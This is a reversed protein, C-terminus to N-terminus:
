TTERGVSVYRIRPDFAFTDKLFQGADLVLLPHDASAVADAASSKIEPWPTGVVVASAGVVSEAQTRALVARGSLDGPLEKVVPDYTRVIAGRGALWRCLEISFSRRLTDTGPKYTLGWLAITKGAVGELLQDLRRGAWWRHRDNSTKVAPLLTADTGHDSALGSLFVIDRALTGGAFAEGARLYAKPGIRSETKLGREVESADGGVRECISAIENMFAVSTALFANIAHKTMEASEISMWEVRDTIPALLAAIRGRSTEGRVGVVVRDPNMFVDLAKGLRLNEPSYAFLLDPRTSACAACLRATTGVPVQSSVLVLASQAAYQLISQAREVVCEVDARDEEDVPTDYAIWVIESGAVASATSDFTLTGQRLGALIAEDLGPEFLPARGQKLEGVVVADDDIGVVQHGARSLCAATVCGLHWLGVVAVHM